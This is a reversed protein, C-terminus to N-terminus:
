DTWSSCNRKFLSSMWLVCVLQMRRTIFEMHFTSCHKIWQRSSVICVGDLCLLCRVKEQTYWKKKSFLADNSKSTNALKGKVEFIDRPNKNFASEAHDKTELHRKMSEATRFNHEKFFRGTHVWDGTARTIRDVFNSDSTNRTCRICYYRYGDRESDYRSLFNEDTQEDEILSRVVDDIYLL